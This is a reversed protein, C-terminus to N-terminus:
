PIGHFGVFFMQPIKEHFNEMFNWQIGHIEMSFEM